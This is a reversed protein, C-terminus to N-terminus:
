AVAFSDGTLPMDDAALPPPLAVGARVISEFGVRLRRWAHLTPSLERGIWLVLWLTSFTGSLKRVRRAMGALSRRENGRGRAFDVLELVSYAPYGGLAEDAGQGELLVPVNAARAQRMLSWLPYVAPSYGPGDMHWAIDPLTELWGDQPAPATELEAGVAIAARQAWDLEGTTRGTSPLSAPCRRHGRRSAAALVATSDLGGCLTMGVPVDSRLRLRM